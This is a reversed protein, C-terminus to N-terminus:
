ELYKAGGAQRTREDSLENPLMEGRETAGAIHGRKLRDHAIKLGLDDTEALSAELRDNVAGADDQM